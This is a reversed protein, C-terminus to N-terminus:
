NKRSTTVVADVHIALTSFDGCNGPMAFDVFKKGLLNASVQFNWLRLRRTSGGSRRKLRCDQSIFSLAYVLAMKKARGKMPKNLTKCRNLARAGNLDSSFLDITKRQNFSFHAPWLLVTRFSNVLESM